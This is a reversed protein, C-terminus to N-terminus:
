NVVNIPRGQIFAAINETTTKMLRVRAELTAWALHPTIICNPAALLPNSEEIPERSVVDVAAGALQGNNLAAALDAENVLPGRATNILMAGPKMLGLLRKDLMGQNESTLPCHLSIVDSLSLVEQLSKCQIGPLAQPNRTYALVKMGFAQALQGVQRGIRGLGVIGMTKGALEILPTDWFCFDVSKSWRGLHVERSHHGVHHCMELLLAFTFQAVSDTSYAPVNSVPIGLGRAAQVDVVNYGTALVSIFKLQPLQALTQAGLLTKNTLIIDAGTARSIVLEGPTRDFVTLAGFKGIETWPNDGPNLTLGDLVTIQM